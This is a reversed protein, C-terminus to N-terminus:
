HDDLPDNPTLLTVNEVHDSQAKIKLSNDKQCELAELITKVQDTTM